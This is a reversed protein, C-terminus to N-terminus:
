STIRYRAGDRAAALRSGNGDFVSVGDDRGAQRTDCTDYRMVDCRMVDGRMVECRTRRVCGTVRDGYCWLVVVVM